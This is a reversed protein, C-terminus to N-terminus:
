KLDPGKEKSKLLIASHSTSFIIHEEGKYTFIVLKEGSGVPIVKLNEIGSSALTRKREIYKNTVFLIVILALLVFFSKLYLEILKKRM